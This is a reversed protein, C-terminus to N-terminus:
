RRLPLRVTYKPLAGPTSQVTLEGGHARAIQACLALGLTEGEFIPTHGAEAPLDEGIKAETACGVALVLQHDDNGTSVDVARRPPSHTLVHRLLTGAVQRVRRLDCFAACNLTFSVRIERDPEATELEEVERSLAAGLDAAAVVAPSIGLGSGWRGRMVDLLDDIMASTRRANFKIRGAIHSLAPDELKRELLDAGGFVAQLPNRLDHGIAAAFPDSLGGDLGLALIEAFREITSELRPDSPACAAGQALERVSARDVAYLYGFRRGAALVIPASLGQELLNLEIRGGTRLGFAGAGAMACLIGSDGSTRLVAALDRGTLEVLVRLLLPVAAIRGVARLDAAIEEPTDGM